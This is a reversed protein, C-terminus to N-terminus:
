SLGTRESRDAALTEVAVDDDNAINRYTLILGTSDRSFIGCCLARLLALINGLKSGSVAAAEYGALATEAVNDFAFAESRMRTQYDGASTPDYVATYVGETSADAASHDWAGSYTGDGNDTLTLKHEAGLSAYDAVVDWTTAIFDYWKGDSERRVAAVVTEGTVPNNAPTDDDIVHASLYAVSGVRLHM